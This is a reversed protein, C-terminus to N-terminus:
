WATERLYSFSMRRWPQFGDRNLRYGDIVQCVVNRLSGGKWAAPWSWDMCSPLLFPLGLYNASERHKLHCNVAATSSRPPKLGERWPELKWWTTGPKQGRDRWRERYKKLRLPPLLKRSNNVEPNSWWRRDPKENRGGGAYDTRTNFERQKFYKSHNRNEQSSGSIM